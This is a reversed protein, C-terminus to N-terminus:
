SSPHSCIALFYFSFLRVIRSRWSLFAWIYLGVFLLAIIGGIANGGFFGLVAFALMILISVGFSIYILAVTYQEMMWFYIASLVFAVVISGVSIGTIDSTSVRFNGSSGSSKQSLNNIGIVAVVVFAVIDLVFLIAAWVDKYQSNKSFKESTSSTHITPPPPPPQYNTQPYYPQQQAYGYQPPPQGYPQQGYVPEQPYVGQPYQQNYM